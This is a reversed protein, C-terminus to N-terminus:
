VQMKCQEHPIPQMVHHIGKFFRVTERQTWDINKRKKGWSGYNTARENATEFILPTKLLEEKAKKAQTTDIFTTAEDIILEGDPGIKVQPVPAPADDGDVETEKLLDQKVEKQETPADAQDEELRKCVERLQTSPRRSDSVEANSNARSSRQSGGVCYPFM